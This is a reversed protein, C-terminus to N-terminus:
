MGFKQRRGPTPTAGWGVSPSAGNAGSSGSGSSEAGSSSMAAAATAARAASKEAQAAKAAAIRAALTGQQPTAARSVSGAAGGSSGLTTQPSASTSHQSAGGGRAPTPTAGGFLSPTPIDDADRRLSQQQQPLKQQQFRAAAAGSISPTGGGSGGGGSPTGTVAAVGGGAVTGSLDSAMASRAAAERAAKSESGGSRKVSFFMPGLEALWEPDVATVCMMYEKSTAVLEHYAVYDPTYGLGFLSSSPHLHCPIGTLVNIYEGVGKLRAANYFYASCIAKRVSDWDHGCSNLAVGQSKMIDLLQQRVERAKKMGKAHLFHDACWAGSYGARRWQGYVNLLTLHDSEPVMFKERAADSDAERDRPRFFVSPVSLMSVVTAVESSCGGAEGALLMKALPPDLPFESMRRGLHTLGGGNDLAGLVWLQYLAAALNPRPPADMLAFSRIDGVGLSKLLLVVNSLNTRQIEPVTMPLLERRYAAESYLRFAIGPGTRGARGSRQDANAASIPTM